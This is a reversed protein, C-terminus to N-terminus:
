IRGVSSPAFQRNGSLINVVKPSIMILLKWVAVSIVILSIFSLLYDGMVGGFTELDFLSSFIKKVPSAFFQHVAYIFFTSSICGTIISSKVESHVRESFKILFMLAFVTECIELCNLDSSCIYSVTAFIIWFTLSILQTKPWMIIKSAYGSYTSIFAGIVIYEFGYCQMDSIIVTLVFILFIYKNRIVLYTIPSLLCFIILNRIFWFAFAYPYEGEFFLFGKLIFLINNFLDNGYPFIEEYTNEAISAKLILYTLFISNWLIYPVILSYFRRKTKNIYKHFSFYAIDRFYLYGSIIFFAPVSVRIFYDILSITDRGLNNNWDGPSNSHILVVGLILFFKTLSINTFFNSM